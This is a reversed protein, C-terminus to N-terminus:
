DCRDYEFSKCDKAGYQGLLEIMAPDSKKMAVHLASGEDSVVNVNIGRSLLLRAMRLDGKEVAAILPTTNCCERVNVNAGHDLLFRTAEENGRNTTCFLPHVYPETRANADAGLWVLIKMRATQNSCAAITFEEQRFAFFLLLYALLMCPILLLRFKAKM